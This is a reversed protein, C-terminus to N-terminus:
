PQVEEVVVEVGERRDVEGCQYGILLALRDVDLADAIGSVAENMCSPMQAITVFDTHSIFIVRYRKGATAEYKSERMARNTDGWALAAIAKLATRFRFETVAQPIDPTITYRWDLRTTKATTTM